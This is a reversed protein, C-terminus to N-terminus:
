RVASRENSAERHFDRLAAHKQIVAHTMSIRKAANLCLALVDTKLSAIAELKGGTLAASAVRVILGPEIDVDGAMRVKPTRMVPAVAHMPGNVALVVFARKGQTAVTGPTM